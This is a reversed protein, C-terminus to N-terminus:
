EVWGRRYGQTTRAALLIKRKRHTKSFNRVFRGADRALIDPRHKVSSARRQERRRWRRADKSLLRERSRRLTMARARPTTGLECREPRIRRRASPRRGRRA